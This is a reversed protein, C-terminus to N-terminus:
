AGLRERVAAKVRELDAFGGERAMSHVLTGDVSVDFTGEDWPILRVASLRVGFERMLAGALALTQEEYGCDACYTITVRPAAM